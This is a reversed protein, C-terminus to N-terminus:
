NGDDNEEDNKEEAEIGAEAEAEADESNDGGTFVGLMLMSADASAWYIPSAPTVLLALGLAATFAGAERKDSTAEIGVWVGM